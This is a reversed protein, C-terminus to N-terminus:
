NGEVPEVQFLKPVLENYIQYDKIEDPTVLYKMTTGSITLGTGIKKVLPMNLRDGIFTIREGNTAIFDFRNEAGKQREYWTQESVQNALIENSQSSYTPVYYFE